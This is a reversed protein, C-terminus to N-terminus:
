LDQNDIFLVPLISLCTVYPHFILIPHNAHQLTYLASIYYQWEGLDDGGGCLGFSQEICRHRKQQRAYLTIMIM